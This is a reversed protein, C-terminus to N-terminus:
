ATYKSALHVPIVDWKWEVQILVPSQVPLHTKSSCGIQNGKTTNVNIGGKLHHASSSISNFWTLKTQQDTISEKAINKERETQRERERISEKKDQM